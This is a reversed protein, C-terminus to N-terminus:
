RGDPDSRPAPAVAAFVAPRDLLGDGSRAAELVLVPSPLAVPESRASSALAVLGLAALLVVLLLRLLPMAARLLRVRVPHPRSGARPPSLTAMPVQRQTSAHLTPRFSIGESYRMAGYKAGPMRKPRPDFGISRWSEM